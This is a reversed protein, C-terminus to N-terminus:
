RCSPPTTDFNASQATWSSGPSHRFRSYRVAIVIGLVTAGAKASSKGMRYDQSCRDIISASEHSYPRPSRVRQTSRPVARTHIERDKGFMRRLHFQAQEVGGVRFLLRVLDAQGFRCVHDPVAVEGIQLGALEVAVPDMTRVIRLVAMAKIGVLHQEIGIGLRNAPVHAPIVGKKAVFDARIVQGEVFTVARCEARQARHHISRKGPAVVARWARGPMFREDVFSMDAAHGHTVRANGFLFAAAIGPKGRLRDDLVQEIKAHRGDLQHRDMEMEVVAMQQFFPQSIIPAVVRQVKERRMQFVGGLRRRALRKRFEFRHHPREVRRSDFHDEVHDVVVGAFAAPQPRREGPAAHVVDGIVAEHMVVFSIAHVIRAGAVCQVHPVRAHQLHDHVAQAIPHQLHVYVAEAEVQGAGQSPFQVLHVAEAGEEVDNV